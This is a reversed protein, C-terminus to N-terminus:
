YVTKLYCQECYVIEKSDSSYTTQLGVGCKDCKRGSIKRPNRLLFRQRYREDPHLHPIPLNHERYFKLEQAILKFPRGTAECEIAWNLVDDPVEDTRDPLRSAQITKDAKPAEDPIDSWKFGQKLAEDRTLPYFDQAMTENYGFHSLQAPLFEGFEGNKVMSEIIQPVLKEYEEKSYQKNFICYKKHRLGICGFLNQSAHCSLSYILDSVSDWCHLSMLTNMSNNGIELCNLCKENGYGFAYVDYCDKSDNYWACFKCDELNNCDFCYSANRSNFIHDSATVNENNQGDYYLHTHKKCFEYFEDKLKKIVSHSTFDIESM